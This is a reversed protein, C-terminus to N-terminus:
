LKAQILKISNAIANRVSDVTEKKLQAELISVTEASIIRAMLTASNHRTAWNSSGLTKSFAPLCDEGLVRKNLQSYANERISDNGDALFAVMALSSNEQGNRALITVSNHRTAWNSHTANLALQEVAKETISRIVLYKYSNERVGDVSDSLFPILALTAIEDANRAIITASNHRTAWNSHKSNLALKSVAAETIDRKLLQAYSNERISDVSDTLYPILSMTTSELQNRGMISVSNHRQAWNKSSVNKALKGAVSDSITRKALQNFANERVSDVSDGLFEVLLSTTSESANLAMITVSNHRTSWNSFKLNGALLESAADKIPRKVLQNYSNERIRDNSDRLFPILAQTQKETKGRGLITVANHRTAWNNSSSFASLVLTHKDNIDYTIALNYSQERVSDTSDELSSIIIVEDEDSSKIANLALLGRIRLYYDKNKIAKLVLGKIEESKIKRDALIIAAFQSINLSDSSLLDKALSVTFSDAIKTLGEDFLKLSELQYVTDKQDIWITKLAGLVQELAERDKEKLPVSLIKALVHYAPRIDKVEKLKAILDVTSLSTNILGSIQPKVKEAVVASILDEVKTDSNMAYVEVKKVAIIKDTASVHYIILSRLEQEESKYGVPHPYIWGRKTKVFNESYYNFPSFNNGFCMIGKNGLGCESILQAMAKAEESEVHIEVSDVLQPRLLQRNLEFSYEKFLNDEDPNTEAVETPPTRESFPVPQQPKVVTVIERSLTCDVQKKKTLKSYKLLGAPTVTFIHEETDKLLINRAVKTSYTLQGDKLVASENKSKGLKILLEKVSDSTKLQAQLTEAAYSMVIEIPCAGSVKGSYEGAFDKLLVVEKISQPTRSQQYHTSCSLGTVLVIFLGIRHKQM